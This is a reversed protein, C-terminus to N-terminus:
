FPWKHIPSTKFSLTSYSWRFKFLEAWCLDCGQRTDHAIKFYTLPKIAFFCHVFYYHYHCVKDFIPTFTKHINIKTSATISVTLCLKFTYFSIERERNRGRDTWRDAGWECFCCKRCFPFSLLSDKLPVCYCHFCEVAHHLFSFLIKALGWGWIFNFSLHPPTDTLSAMFTARIFALSRPLRLSWSVSVCSSHWGIILEKWLM